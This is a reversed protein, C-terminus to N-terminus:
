SESTFKMQGKVGCDSTVMDVKCLNRAANVSEMSRKACHRSVPSAVRELLVTHLSRVGGYRRTQRGM